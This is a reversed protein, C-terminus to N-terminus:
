AYTYSAPAHIWVYVPVYTTGQDIILATITTKDQTPGEKPKQVLFKFHIFSLVGM